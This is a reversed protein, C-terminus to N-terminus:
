GIAGASVCVEFVTIFLLSTLLPDTPGLVSVFLVQFWTRGSMSTRQIAQRAVLAAERAALRRGEVGDHVSTWMEPLDSLPDTKRPFRFVSKMKRSYAFFPDSLWLFRFLFARNICNRVEWVELIRFVSKM